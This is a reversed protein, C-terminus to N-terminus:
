ARARRRFPWLRRFLGPRTYSVGGRREWERLLRAQERTFNAPMRVRIRVLHDGCDGAASSIGAGRLRIESGPQSRPPLAMEVRGRLTQVDVRGGLIATALPVDLDSRIDKGARRLGPQPAVTVKLLLDGPPGDRRAPFGAGRLRLVTGDEIGPPIRVELKQVRRGFFPIGERLELPRKVGDAAELLSIRIRRKTAPVVEPRRRLPEDSLIDAFFAERVSDHAGRSEPERPVDSSSAGRPRSRPEFVFADREFAPDSPPPPPPPPSPMGKSVEEALRRLETYAATIKRFRVEAGPDGGRKDPHHLFALRRFAREIDELRADRPIGLIEYPDDQGVSM